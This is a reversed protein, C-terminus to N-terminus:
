KNLFTGDPYTREWKNSALNFRKVIKAPAGVIVCYDPFKGRVVSNAGIVCQSGLITGAQIAVGYGIFCNKGIKTEKIIHPQNLIHVNIESYEHDINTIFTNGSITTNDGIYLERNGSTIHFNQGISVNDGITIKGNDHCEMRCGPFIRVRKGLKINKSGYVFILSGVYDSVHIKGLVFRYIIQTKLWWM